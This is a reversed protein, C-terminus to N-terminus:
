SGLRFVPLGLEPDTTPVFEVRVRAGCSVEGPDCGVINSLMRHGSDLDIMAVVYPGVDKWEPQVARHVVSFSAVVGGGQCERWDLGGEPDSPPWAPRGTARCFPLLLVGDRAAKWHPTAERGRRPASRIM